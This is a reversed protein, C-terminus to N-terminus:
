IQDVLTVNFTVEVPLCQMEATEFNVNSELHLNLLLQVDWVGPRDVNVFTHDFINSWWLLEREPLPEKHMKPICVLM